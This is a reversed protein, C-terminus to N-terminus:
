TAQMAKSARTFLGEIIRVATVEDVTLVATAFFNEIGEYPSYGVGPTSVIERTLLDVSRGEAATLGGTTSDVHNLVTVLNERAIREADPLSSAARGELSTSITMANARSEDVAIVVKLNFVSHQHSLTISKATDDMYAMSALLMEAFERKHNADRGLTIIARQFADPGKQMFQGIVKLGTTKGEIALSQAVFHRLGEDSLGNYYSHRPGFATSAWESRRAEVSEVFQREFPTLDDVTGTLIQRTRVIDDSLMQNIKPIDSLLNEIHMSGKLGITFGNTSSVSISHKFRDFSTGLRSLVSANATLTLIASLAVVLKKMKYELKTVSVM